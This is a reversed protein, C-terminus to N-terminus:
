QVGYTGAVTSKVVGAEVRLQYKEGAARGWKAWDFRAGSPMAEVDMSPIDAAHRQRLDPKKRLQVLFAAGEGAVQAQGNGDLMVAAREDIGIGRGDDCANESHIRGLFILLRGM